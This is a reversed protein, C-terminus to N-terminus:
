PPIFYAEILFDEGIRKIKEIRLWPTESLKKVGKGEVWTPSKKGGIIRPAVFLFIKDALNEEIFSAIVEGGGEVLLSLIKRKKLEKLVFELSVRDEKKEGGLVEIGRSHLESIKEREAKQTTFILTKGREQNQFIKASFPVRLSSDLVVRLISRSPALLQPNDKIITNVGVLIADVRDRLRHSFKRAKEQTIWFSEGAFTSIKGDLSVAAKLVVWPRGEKMFKFFAENIKKAKEEEVGVVVEVGGERLEKVGKQYNQPNPDLTGIVVRRVGSSLIFRTCPPTKGWTSCPELSVYLTSGQAKEGAKKLAIVEAHPGGFRSHYGQSILKEEKVVVAGVLPNPSVKGEGKRALSLCVRMWKKDEPLISFTQVRIEKKKM